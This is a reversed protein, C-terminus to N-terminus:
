YSMCSYSPTRGFAYVSASMRFLTCTDGVRLVLHIKWRRNLAMRKKRGSIQQNLNHQDCLIGSELTRMVSDFVVRTGFIALSSNNKFGIGWRKNRTWALWSFYPSLLRFNVLLTYRSYSIQLLLSENMVASEVWWVFNLHFSLNEIKKLHSM